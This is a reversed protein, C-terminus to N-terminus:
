NCSCFRWREVERCKFAPQSPITARGASPVRNIPRTGKVPLGIAFRTLERRTMNRAWPRSNRRAITGPREATLSQAGAAAHACHERLIDPSDFGGTRILPSRSQSVSIIMPFIPPVSFPPHQRSASVSRSLSARSRQILHHSSSPQVIRTSLIPFTKACRLPSSSLRAGTMVPECMSVCGVPPFNSPTYPTIAPRSTIRVSLSFLM